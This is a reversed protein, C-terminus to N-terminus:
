AHNRGKPQKGRSIGVGRAATEGHLDLSQRRRPAAFSRGHSSSVGGLPPQGFEPSALARCFRPREFVCLKRQRIRLLEEGASAILAHDGCRSYPLDNALLKRWSLLRRQSNTM